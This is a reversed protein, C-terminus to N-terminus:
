VHIGRVQPSPKVTARCNEETVGLRHESTTVSEEEGSRMPAMGVSLCVRSWSRSVTRSTEPQLSALPLFHGWIIHLVDRHLLSKQRGSAQCFTSFLVYHVGTRTSRLDGLSRAM